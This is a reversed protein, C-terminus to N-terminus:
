IYIYIYMHISSGILRMATNMNVMNMALHLVHNLISAMINFIRVQLYATCHSGRVTGVDCDAMLRLKEPAKLPSAGGSASAGGIQVIADIGIAKRKTSAEPATVKGGM